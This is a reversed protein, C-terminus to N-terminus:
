ANNIMQILREIDIWTERAGEGQVEALCKDNAIQCVREV